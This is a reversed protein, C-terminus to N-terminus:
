ETKAITVGQATHEQQWAVVQAQVLESLVDPIKLQRRQCGLKFDFWLDDDQMLFQIMRSM